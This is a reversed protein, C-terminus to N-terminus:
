RPRRRGDILHQMALLPHRWLMRPGAYRMVLRIRQRTEPRYCHITCRACTPKDAAFPCASIRGLAYDLLEQCEPCLTAEPHHHDRCYLEVMVQVTRKERELRTEPM